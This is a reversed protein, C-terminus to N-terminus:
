ESERERETLWGQRPEPGEGGRVGAPWSCPPGKLLSQSDEKSRLVNRQRESEARPFGTLRRSESSVSVTCKALGPSGFQGSLYLTMM